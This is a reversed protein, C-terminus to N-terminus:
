RDAKRELARIDYGMENLKNELREIHRQHARSDSELTAVREFLKDIEKAMDDPNTSM